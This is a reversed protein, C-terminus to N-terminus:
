AEGKGKCKMQGLHPLMAYTCIATVTNIWYPCTLAVRCKLHMVNSTSNRKYSVFIEPINQTLSLFESHNVHYVSV